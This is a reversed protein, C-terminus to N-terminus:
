HILRDHNALVIYVAIVWGQLLIEPVHFVNFGNKGLLRELLLDERALQQAEFQTECVLLVRPSAASPHTVPYSPEPVCTTSELRYHRKTPRKNLQKPSKALLILMSM